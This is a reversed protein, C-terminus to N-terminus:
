DVDSHLFKMSFGAIYMTALGAALGWLSIFHTTVAFYLVAASLIFRLFYQGRIYNVASDKNDMGAAKEVAFDLMIVKIANLGSAAFVGAAFPLFDYTRYYVAAIVSMALSSAGMVLIMKKAISSLKM